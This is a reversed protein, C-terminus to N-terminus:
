NESCNKAGMSATEPCGHCLLPFLPRAWFWFPYSKHSPLSFPFFLKELRLNFM